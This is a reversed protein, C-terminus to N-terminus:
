KLEGMAKEYQEKNPATGHWEIKNEMFSVGKGKITEAVIVRPTGKEHEKDLANKIEEINHGAITIVDWGFSRFKNEISEVNMMDKVFGGLQISNYDIIATINDLKYHSSSMAAEWIQGEQLEGDGIVVYVGYDKKDLKAALAMGNAISLGQGLSGSSIEIGPTKNSPHGQLMGNTKRLENLESKSFYGTEALCAYLVPAAHGKSLILRDRDPWNPDNSKFKMKYFFLCTMIDALSLSGGPHGSGATYIMKIIEQRIVKAKEILINKDFM